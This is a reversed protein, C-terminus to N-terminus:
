NTYYVLLYASMVAFLMNTGLEGGSFCLTERLSLEGKTKTKNGMENEKKKM